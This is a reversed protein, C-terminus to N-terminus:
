NSECGIGDNDGDFGHPDSGVVQFRRYSIQGCDLDPPYYPICVTPYSPHCNSSQASTAPRPTFTSVPRSTRTPISIFSSSSVSNLSNQLLLYELAVWGSLGNFYIEAWSRDSNTQLIKVCDDRVLGGIMQHYPGPGSRVRLSSVNVCGRIIPTSTRTPKQTPYIKKTATPKSTQYTSSTSSTYSGCSSTILTLLIIGLSIITEFKYTKLRYIM